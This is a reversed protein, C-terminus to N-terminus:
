LSTWRGLALLPGDSLRRRPCRRPSPWRCSDVVRAGTVAGPRAGGPGEGPRWAVGAVRGQTRWDHQGRPSDSGLCRRVRLSVWHRESASGSASESAWDSALASASDSALASLWDSALASASDSALASLWDSAWSGELVSLALEFARASRGTNGVIGGLSLRRPDEQLAPATALAMEARLLPDDVALQALQEASLLPKRGQEAPVVIRRPWLLEEAM